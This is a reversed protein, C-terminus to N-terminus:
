FFKRLDRGSHEGHTVNESRRGGVECSDVGPEDMHHPVMPSPGAENYVPSYRMMPIQAVPLRDSIWESPESGTSRRQGVTIVGTPGHDMWETARGMSQYRDAPSGRCVSSRGVLDDHPQQTICEVFPDMNEDTPASFRARNAHLVAPYGYIGEAQVAQRANGAHLEAPRRYVGGPPASFHVRGAHSDAPYGHVGEGCAAPCVSSARVDAPFGQSGQCTAPCVLPHIGTCEVNAVGSDLSSTSQRRAPPAATNNVQFLAHCPWHPDFLRQVSCM